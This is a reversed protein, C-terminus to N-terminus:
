IKLIMAVALYGNKRLWGSDIGMRVFEDRMAVVEPLKNFKEIDLNEPRKEDAVRTKDIKGLGVLLEEIRKKNIKRKM